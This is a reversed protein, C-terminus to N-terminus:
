AQCGFSLVKDTAAMSQEGKSVTTAESHSCCSEKESYALKKYL